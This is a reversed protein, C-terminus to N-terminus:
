IKESGKSARLREYCPPLGPFGSARWILGSDRWHKAQAIGIERDMQYENWWHKEAVRSSAVGTQHTATVTRQSGKARMQLVMFNQICREKLESSTMDGNLEAHKKLYDRFGTDISRKKSASSDDRLKRARDLEDQTPQVEALKAAQLAAPM